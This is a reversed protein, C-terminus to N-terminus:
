FALQLQVTESPVWKTGHAKSAGAQLKVSTDHGDIWYNLGGYVSVYDGLNGPAKTSDYWDFGAVPQVSEYRLGAEALVGWGTFLGKDGKRDVEDGNLWAGPNNRDGYNFYVANVQGTFATQKASGLPLDWFVDAAAAYYDTREAVPRVPLDDPSSAPLAAWDPNLDKQWDVSLGFALVKRPSTIRGETSQLYVGDYFFGAAGPGGEPEFANFTLRAALRPWDSPNRPDAPQRWTAGAANTMKALESKGHVGNFVGLRYEVRDGLLLGRAMVGADRWVKNSAPPYRLMAVHYDLALLSGAGQMGHHSFPVLLMGADVQLARGLNLEVWADQMFMSGEYNGQRGFNPNDTEFFFNVRESTQGSLILRMRRVYLETEAGGDPASDGTVAGWTQLLAGLKLFSEDDGIKYGALSEGPVLLPLAAAAAALAVRRLPRAAFLASKM